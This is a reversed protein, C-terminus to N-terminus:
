EEDEGVDQLENLELFEDRCRQTDGCFLLVTDGEKYAWANFDNHICGCMNCHWPRSVITADYFMLGKMRM